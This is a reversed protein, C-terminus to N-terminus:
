VSSTSNTAPVYKWYEVRNFQNLSHRGDLAVGIGDNRHLLRGGNIDLWVGVHHFLRGMSMLVLCGDEMVSLQQWSGTTIEQSVVRHFAAPNLTPIELHRDLEVNFKQVFAFCVVGWCDFADPGTAYEQWPKGTIKEVWLDSM